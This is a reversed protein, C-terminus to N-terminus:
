RPPASTASAFGDSKEADAAGRRHTIAEAPMERLWLAFIGAAALAYIMCAPMWMILGALQQDELASLNWAETRGIYDGYWPRPALALFVGLVTAHLSTAFLYIVGAGYSLRLRALPDILVRWFMCAVIFFMLHQIEHIWRNRLAAEYLVPLHWVWLVAAYLGCMILPQWLWYWRARIWEVRRWGMLRQRWPAPAAWLMVTAPAGLIFLPASLSMLTMHQVMHASQLEDSMPDLPSVLAIVLTVIAGAFCIAQWRAVGRGVGARSWIRMLGISYLLALAFLSALILPDLNWMMWWPQGDHHEGAHALIHLMSLM